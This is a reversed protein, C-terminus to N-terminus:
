KAVSQRENKVNEYIAVGAIVTGIVLTTTIPAVQFAKPLYKGVLITLGAIM